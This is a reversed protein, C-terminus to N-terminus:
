FAELLKIRMAYPRIDSSTMGYEDEPEKARIYGSAEINHGVAIEDAGAFENYGEFKAEPHLFVEFEERQEKYEETAETVVLLTLKDGDKETVQGCLVFVAKMEKGEALQFKTFTYNSNRQGEEADYQSFFGTLRVTATPNAKHFALFDAIRKEGWIRGYAKIQGFKDNGCEIQLRLYPKGKGKQSKKETVEVVRGFVNGLKLYKM